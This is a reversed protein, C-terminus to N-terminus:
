KTPVVEPRVTARWRTQLEAPGHGIQTDIGAETVTTGTPGAGPPRRSAPGSNFKVYDYEVGLIVHDWLAYELGVGATWGQEQRSSTTLLVGTSTATTRYDVDGLAYGAKAYALINDWAAGFKGTVLLLSKATSTLSTVGDSSPSTAQQDMWTYAAEAGLVVSGWQKQLGVHGGGAFGNTSQALPDVHLGDTYTWESRTTPEGSTGASM